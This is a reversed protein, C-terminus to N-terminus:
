NDRARCLAPPELEVVLDHIRWDVATAAQRAEAIRASQDRTSSPTLFVEGTFVHGEERLRVEASAVWPLAMLADRVRRPADSPDGDVTVPRRDMLDAVVHRLNVVGDRTIGFSIFGGAAADAWWWGIGIGLVGVIGSLATLWDAKNMDADAKLTKDHLARAPDMKLRGLVLPPLGSLFLVGIMLWGSWIQRGFLMSTGITAHEARVLTRVSDFLIIAGFLTLAMAAALFAISTSRHYGYPFDEDPPRHRFRASVLFAAPAVLSLMDEIWAAQMAQSTGKTLYIMVVVASMVALTVWELRVARTMTPELESPLEFPSRPRM